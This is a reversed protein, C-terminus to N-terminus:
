RTSVAMMSVFSKFIEPDLEGPMEDKMLKFAPFSNIANKYSRRTTLADFIDCVTAIRVYSPIEDAKLGNPYGSGSLKEHHCLTVNLIIESSIGHESLIEHGWTPHMKMIKWQEDSLPGKWKLIEDSIRSKGIDHLLAGTGFELLFDMDDHGLYQALTVCYVFVNVSHTYTHYDFSSAKLFYSFSTDDKFMFNVVSDVMAKSRPIVDGRGPDNMFDRVMHHATDYLIQTKEPVAVDDDALLMPIQDEIYRYYVDEQGRSIYLDEVDHARLRDLVEQTLSLDHQRYLVPESERETRLFLDFGTM